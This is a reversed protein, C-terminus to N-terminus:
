LQQEWGPITAMGRAMYQWYKSTLQQQTRELLIEYQMVRVRQLEEKCVWTYGQTPHVPVLLNMKGSFNRLLYGKVQLLQHM